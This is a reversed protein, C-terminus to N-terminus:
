WLQFFLDQLDRIILMDINLFTKRYKDLMESMSINGRKGVVKELYNEIDNKVKNESYERKNTRNEINNNVTNGSTSVSGTSDDITANTLYRDAELDTISGQPTDSYRSTAHATNSENQMASANGSSILDDSGNDAGQRSDNGSTIKDRSTKLDVDAFPDFDLLESQYLKNYYPMIENMRNNLWLKWLGITEACIERTYYHRLIKKELLLRYNEDFIPFDEFINPAAAEVISDVSNYGASEALGAETECIFRVEVTYKSM